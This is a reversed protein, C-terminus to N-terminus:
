IRKWSVVQVKNLLQKWHLECCYHKERTVTTSEYEAVLPCKEGECKIVPKPKEQM